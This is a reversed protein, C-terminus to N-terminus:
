GNRAGNLDPPFVCSACRPNRRSDHEGNRHAAERRAEWMTSGVWSEQTRADDDRYLSPAGADDRVAQWVGDNETQPPTVQETM